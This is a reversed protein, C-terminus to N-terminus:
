GVNGRQRGLLGLFKSYFFICFFILFEFISIVDAPDFNVKFYSPDVDKILKQMRKEVSVKYDFTKHLRQKDQFSKLDKAKLKQGNEHNKM